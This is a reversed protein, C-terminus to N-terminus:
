EAMHVAQTAVRASEGANKAIERISASMEETSTAVSQTSRSVEDAATSVVQTQASTEAANSGLQQSVSTLHVSSAALADASRAVLRLPEVLTDLLANTGSVLEAYVGEFKSADGRIGLRGAQSAQILMRLEDVVASLAKSSQRFSDALAGTEDRGHYTLEGTLEGHAIARAAVEIQRVPATLIRTNAVAICLGFVLAFGALAL